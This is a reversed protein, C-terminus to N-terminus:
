PFMSRLTTLLWTNIAITSILLAYNPKTQFYLVDSHTFKFLSEYGVLLIVSKSVIWGHKIRIGFSLQLKQICNPEFSVFTPM